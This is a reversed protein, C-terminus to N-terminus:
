NENSLGRLTKQHSELLEGIITIISTYSKKKYFFSTHGYIQQLEKALFDIDGGQRLVASILRSAVPSWDLTSRENSNIFLEYPRPKGDVMANNITIYIPNDLHDVEIQYTAGELTTPRDVLVTM